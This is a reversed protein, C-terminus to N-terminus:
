LAAKAMQVAATEIHLHVVVVIYRFAGLAAELSRSELDAAAAATHHESQCAVFAAEVSLIRCSAAELWLIAAVATRTGVAAAAVKMGVVAVAAAEVAAVVEVFM